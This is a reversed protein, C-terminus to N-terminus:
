LPEDGDDTGAIDGDGEDDTADEDAEQELGAEDEDGADPTPLPGGLVAPREPLSSLKREGRELEEVALCFDEAARVQEDSWSAITALDDETNEGAIGTWDPPIVLIADYLRGDDRRWVAEPTAEPSEGGDADTPTDAAEIGAELADLAGPAAGEALPLDQQGVPGADPTPRDGGRYPSVDVVSLLVQKGVADTLDHRGPDNQSLALTAKIGADKIVAQELKAVIAARGDGAIIKVADVIAKGVGVHFREIIAEQQTATLAQWPKSQRRLEDVLARLLDGTMTAAAVRIVRPQQQEEEEAEDAEEAEARETSENM